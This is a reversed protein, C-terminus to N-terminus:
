FWLFLHHLCAAPGGSSGTHSCFQLIPAFSRSGGHSSLATECHKTFAKSRHTIKSLPFGKQTRTFFLSPCVSIIKVHAELVHKGGQLKENVSSSRKVVSCCFTDQFVPFLFSVSLLPKGKVYIM